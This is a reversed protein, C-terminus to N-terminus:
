WDLGESQEDRVVQKFLIEQRLNELLADDLGFIQKLTRYTVRGERQLVLM